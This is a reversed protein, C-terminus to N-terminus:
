KELIMPKTENYNGAILKYFYVGSSLTKGQDNTGDWLVRYSGEDRTEGNILSRVLGGNTDYVLLKITATNHLDFTIQTQSNFPNPYNQYLKFLSPIQQDVLNKSSTVSLVSRDYVSIEASDKTVVFGSDHMCNIWNTFYQHYVGNPNDPNTRDPYYAVPTLMYKAAYWSAAFPDTSGLLM